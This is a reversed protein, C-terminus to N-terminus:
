SLLITKEPIEPDEGVQIVGSNGSYEILKDVAICLCDHMQFFLEPEYNELLIEFGLEVQRYGQQAIDQDPPIYLKVYKLKSTYELIKALKELDRSHM